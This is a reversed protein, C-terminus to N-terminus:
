GVYLREQLFTSFSVARVILHASGMEYEITTMVMPFCLKSIGPRTAYGPDGAVRMDWRIIAWMQKLLEKFSKWGVLRITRGFPDSPPPTDREIVVDLQEAMPMRWPDPLDSNVWVSKSVEFAARAVEPRLDINCAECRAGNIFVRSEDM